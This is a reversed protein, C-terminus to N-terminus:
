QLEPRIKYNTINFCGFPKVFTVSRFPKGSLTIHSM